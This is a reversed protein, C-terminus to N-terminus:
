GSIGIKIDGTDTSIECKGGTVTEPVSVDGASTKIIFVKESLLTGRVDGTDTKVFIESADCDSLTM